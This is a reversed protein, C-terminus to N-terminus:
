PEDGEEEPELTRELWMRHHRVVLTESLFRDDDGISEFPEFAVVSAGEVHIRLRAGEAEDIPRLVVDFDGISLEGTNFCRSWGLDSAIVMRRLVLHRREEGPAARWSATHVRDLFGKDLKPNCRVPEVSFHTCPIPGSRMRM